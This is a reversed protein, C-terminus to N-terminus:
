HRIDIKRPAIGIQFSIGESAFDNAILEQLPAGFDALALYVKMANERTPNVLVDM